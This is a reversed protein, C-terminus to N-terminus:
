RGPDGWTRPIWGRVNVTMLALHDSLQEACYMEVGDITSLGDGLRTLLEM